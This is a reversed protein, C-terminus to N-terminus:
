SRGKPKPKLSKQTDEQESRMRTKQNARRRSFESHDKTYTMSFFSSFFLFGVNKTDSSSPPSSFSSYNSLPFDQKEGKTINLGLNAGSFVSFLKTELRLYLQCLRTGDSVVVCFKGGENEYYVFLPGLKRRLAPIGLLLAKFTTKTHDMPAGLM